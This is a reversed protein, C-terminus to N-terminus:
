CTNTTMHFPISGEDTSFTNSLDGGVSYLTCHDDALM